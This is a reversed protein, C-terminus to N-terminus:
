KKNKQYEEKELLRARNNTIVNVSCWTVFNSPVTKPSESDCTVIVHM